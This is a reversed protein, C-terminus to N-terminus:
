RTVRRRNRRMAVGQHRDGGLHEGCGECSSWSFWPDCDEPCNGHVDWGPWRAALLEATKVDEDTECGNATVVLCQSCLDIKVVSWRDPHTVTWRSIRFPTTPYARAIIRGMAIGRHAAIVAKAHSVDRRYTTTM